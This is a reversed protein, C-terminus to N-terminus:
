LLRKGMLVVDKGQVEAILPREVSVSDYSTPKEQKVQVTDELGM